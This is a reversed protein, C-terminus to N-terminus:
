VITFNANSSDTVTPFSLSTIRIMVTAGAPGTVVWAQTGDNATSALLTTWTAGGDRSIEIKVSGSVGLSTWTINHTSGVAWSEGGNPSTVTISQVITFDANSTDLITPATASSIRIRATTTAPGTVIWGQTGDNPSAAIINTWTAGGDRSIDINVGGSIGVSTWTVTQTTGVTWSEGGNPAAVTISQIISFNANSTDLVAPTSVSSVRIRATATAPATVLWSYTGTNATSAIITTWTTGGDRSIDIKVSGPVSVSTWTIAHTTVANWSEGGNPSTVTIAPPLAPAITFNANSTDLIAPFSLSSIRIRATATTPTTVVWAQTGDNLTSALLTTWTTGGDRSLDIKVSGSIGVSTWTITQTSGVNWTEGGNPATVTISQIIAFNANSTDTAAPTTVSTIRIRATASASGSVVWVQTGDNLTGSIIRTWTTGGDRSIDINLSGTVSISTWTITQTSGVPWSEGGNPSTVTISAPPAPAITFNANSTDLVAPFSLSSIRIRATATTPTTVVWAQTGDNTTSALLTTWTTGGDRSLDIKVSGAVGVSTWTITQTTGVNWTEGGNPATVTISQLISFNADSTDFAAPNTVNSIRIQATATAPGTVVWGQSGDNPTTALITGWTTGGDRSLEIKVNAITGTTTWTITQTTGVAWSEGGNPSVVTVPALLSPAITFDAPSMGTATPTILSTVRIRATATVPATVLWPEIGDNATSALVTTWTAGSDRSVEIMVNGTVGVSTWQINQTSDINWSEGGIPSIVTVTAAPAASITFDANSTDVVTPTTVSTVRIRATTSTPATVLWSYTGTNATSAIIATWTAGSDRSVEIMVNGTIGVSSWTITQTSGVAWTESGNPSTVTISQAISFNANSVDFIAPTTVSTIRVLANTTALGTVVWPETGDNATSALLTEWLVGGDRSLEIMVNGTIGASTWTISQTSGVVWVEGGNPATVTIIQSITFNANSVDFITPADISTIRILATATNPSTVLWPETGDNATNAFLTTWTTGGDRSLEINLNGTILASTWTISQTSGPVWTEGGNPATVTISQTVPSTTFTFPISWPSTGGPGTANVKWTYTTGGTLTNAPITYTAATLGSVNVIPSLGGNATVQVSYSTATAVTNWTLVIAATSDVTSLDAPLLLTPAALGGPITFTRTSSNGSNGAAGSSMVKWTYTGPPLLSNPINWTNSILGPMDVVVTAGSLIQLRYSTARAAVSWRLAIPAAASVTAADAPSILLPIAPLLVATTTLIQTTNSDVNAAVNFATVKYSYRVGAVASGDVYTTSNAPVIARISYPGIVGGSMNARQIKFGIENTPNGLNGPIDPTADTWSLNNGGSASGTLVPAAPSSSHFVFDIPRMMDNEEHGLIHCHWVYEWGYNMIENTIAIPTGNPAVGFFGMTSGLPLTPALPRISDPLGFPVKPAIPRLAVICDELPNMRVSEKWGLENADPPRIAGDWGVRNIIQVNFLHFHIVHTDVGNHTIKWVQTGDGAVPSIPTVSDEIYETTPDIYGYPITTQNLMNTFPLEVGLTANMRGYDVTFLEQIAKPQMNFTITNTLNAVAKAGSGGGGTILISPASTYGSGPNTLNISALVGLTLTATAAGGTGGGGTITVTPASTYGSGGATVRVAALIGNLVIASATAGSGGGGSITVTPNSVYGSGISTITFGTVSGAAALVATAAAGTGGGGRITITPASTYGSGANIISISSLTQPGTPAAFTNDQIASYTSPYTTGYVSNYAAEPVPIQDQSVRFATPLAATLPAPDYVVPTAAAVRIQMITRTNPGYGPLTTPAGGTGTQDLDGTYYDYRSDPAPVPAPSDNYLILTQGAFASFDVIVDAREAPAIFLSHKTVNGIVINRPNYQYGIPMAPLTAVGPLFGGETGIQIWDPGVTRPDPVGGARGNLIDSPVSGGDTPLVWSAPFPIAPNNVAPVMTVDTLVSSVAAAGTGGGGTISIAPNVIPGTTNAVGGTVTISIVGLIAVATAQTGGAPPASITVTPVSTYGSGSSALVIDTVVGGVVVPVGLAGGGGGGSITIIPDSTYGAGGVVTFGIVGLVATASAGTVSGGSIGVSPVSTYGTGQLTVGITLPAAKFLSLNLMRDNAANLVRFRYAQPQVTITPYATGNVIPTDMFGEPVISPNPTGPIQPPEAGGNALYPNDVPGNLLGTFPPWFWPGYDWRGMANAGTLDYPNQNPMYVHPFWLNGFAGWKTIDWTPDQANLQATQPVYTRDQIVLPIQTAPITGAPVVVATGPIIGGNIMAQEVPDTLIYGAALGDYVNLRTEGLVHDHYFMLRASQQNTYYFTMSGGPQLPMDPVDQTSVGEPYSTTELLPAVWQHPTGDSVWPTVGGHLHITGRNDPYNEVGGNPGTGSGMVTTDNPLFLDGGSATTPLLNTFKIRVPRDRSAIIIPGLYHVPAPAVTNLSTAADTGNNLQVYGRLTTAPLDSHMQETFQVAAIEYYDSGPYTITDANAISVYQGLNNAGSPGLGPLSDVFKRIGTGAVVNGNIDVTPLPSNAFNPYPGFYDPTGGPVPTVANSPQGVIENKLRAVKARLAAAEREANTPKGRYKLPGANSEEGPTGGSDANVVPITAPTFAFLTSLIVLVSLISFLYKKV